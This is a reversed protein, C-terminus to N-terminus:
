RRIAAQGSRGQLTRAGRHDEPGAAADQGHQSLLARRDPLVAGQRGATFIMIAVGFNGVIKYLYDIAYFFPKTLFFFWGWDVAYTFLPLHAQTEYRDLLHVEKAGAFVRSDYVADAGAAAALAASPLYDVEFRDAGGDLFHRWETKVPVAQDPILATLWYKDTFGAWGGTGSHTYGIGDAKDAQTKVKGYALDQLQNDQIGLLGEFM